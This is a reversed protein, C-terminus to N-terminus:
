QTEGRPNLYGYTLEVALSALVTVGVTIVVMGQIAPLDGSLVARVAFDGLGQIGFVTEIVATGGLLYGVQIGFITVVPMLANKLAHKWVITRSSMGKALATRVYDQQLVSALSARLQRAIEAAAVLGLAIGPLLLHSLWDWWGESLPSYGAAPLWGLQVGFFMALLLGLVYNPTALGMTSGVTVARDEWRGARRGALVGAPIGILLAITLAVATLSVTVPMRSLVMDLVPTKFTYSTGLDGQALGLLFSGFQEWVPRDLGLDIRVAEVQAVTAGEGAVKEAPDGPILFVLSFAILTVIALLPVVLALRRGVMPLVRRLTATGRSM